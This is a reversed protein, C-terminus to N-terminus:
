AAEKDDELHVHHLRTSVGVLEEMRGHEQKEERRKGIKDISGRRAEEMCLTLEPEHEVRKGIGDGKAYRGRHEKDFAQRKLEPRPEGKISHCPGHEVRNRTDQAKHPEIHLGAIAPLTRSLLFRLLFM